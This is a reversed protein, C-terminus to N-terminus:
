IGLNKNPVIFTGWGMGYKGPIKIMKFIVETPSLQTEACYAALLGEQLSMMGNYASVTMGAM